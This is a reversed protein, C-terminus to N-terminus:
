NVEEDIQGKRIEILEPPRYANMWPHKLLQQVTIRNRPNIQLMSTIVSRADKSLWMPMHFVGSQIKKYLQGLNDDEFPLKGVLLTYLIV